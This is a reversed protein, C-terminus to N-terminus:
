NVDEQTKLSKEIIRLVYKSRPIDGRKMDLEALVSKPISFSTTTLGTSM